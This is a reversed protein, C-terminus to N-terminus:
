GTPTVIEKFVRFLSDLEVESPTARVGEKRNALRNIPSRHGNSSAPM